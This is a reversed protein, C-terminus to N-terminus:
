MKGYERRAPVGAAFIGSWTGFATLSCRADSAAFTALSSSSANWVASIPRLGTEECTVRRIVDLDVGLGSIQMILEATHADRAEAPVANQAFQNVLCFFSESVAFFGFLLQQCIADKGIYYRKSHSVATYPPM